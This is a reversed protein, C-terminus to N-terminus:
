LYRGLPPGIALDIPIGIVWGRPGTSSGSVRRRNGRSSQCGSNAAFFLYWERSHIRTRLAEHRHVLEDVALMLCEARLDGGIHDVLYVIRFRPKEEAWRNLAWQQTLTLPRFETGQREDHSLSQGV